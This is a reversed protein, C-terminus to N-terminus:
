ESFLREINRASHLMRIVEIGDKTPRYFALHKPFGQLPLWRVDALFASRYRTERGMSPQSALLQFTEEASRIFRLGTEVNQRGALYQAQEEIDADAAPRILVRRKM